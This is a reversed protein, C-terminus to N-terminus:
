AYAAFITSHHGHIIYHTALVTLLIIQLSILSINIFAPLRWKQSYQEHRYKGTFVPPLYRRYIVGALGAVIEERVNLGVKLGIPRDSILIGRFSNIEVSSLRVSTAYSLLLYNKRFFFVLFSM